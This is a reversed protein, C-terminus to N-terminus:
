EKIFTQDAIFFVQLFFSFDSLFLASEFGEFPVVAEILLGWSECAVTDVFEELFDSVLIQFAFFDSKAGKTTRNAM